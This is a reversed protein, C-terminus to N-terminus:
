LELEQGNLKRWSKLIKLKLLSLLFLIYRYLVSLCLDPFLCFDILYRQRKRSAASRLPAPLRLLCGFFAVSHLRWPNLGKNELGPISVSACRGLNRRAHRSRLAPPAATYRGARIASLVISPATQHCSLFTLMIACFM